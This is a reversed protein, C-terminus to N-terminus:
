EKTPTSSRKVFARKKKSKEELKAENLPSLAQEYIKSNPNLKQYMTRLDFYIRAYEAPKVTIEYSILSLFKKETDRIASKVRDHDIEDERAMFEVFTSITFAKDEWMKQAIIFATIWINYWNDPTLVIGHSTIRTVYIFACITCIDPQSAGRSIHDIFHVIFEFTSTSSFLVGADTEDNNIESKEIITTIISPIVQEHFEIGIEKSDGVNAADSMEHQLIAAICNIINELNPKQITTEEERLDGTTKYRIGASYRETEVKKETQYKENSNTSPTRYVHLLNDDKEESGMNFVTEVGDVFTNMEMPIEGIAGNYMNFENSNASNPLFLIDDLNFDTMDGSDCRIKQSEEGHTGYGYSMEHADPIMTATAIAHSVKKKKKEHIVIGATFVPSYVVRSQKM